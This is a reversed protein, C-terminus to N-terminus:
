NRGGSLRVGQFKVCLKMQITGRGSDFAFVKSCSRGNNKFRLGGLVSIVGSSGRIGGVINEDKVM